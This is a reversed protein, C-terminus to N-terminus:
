FMDELNPLVYLYVVDGGEKDLKVVGAKQRQAFYNSFAQTKEESGTGPAPQFLFYGRDNMSCRPLVSDLVYSINTRMNINIRPGWATKQVESELSQSPQLPFRSGVLPVFNGNSRGIEGQWM